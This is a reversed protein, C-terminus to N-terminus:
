VLKDHAIDLQDVLNNIFGLTFNWNDYSKDKPNKDRISGSSDIVFILDAYFNVCSGPCEEMIRPKKM